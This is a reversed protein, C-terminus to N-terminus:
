RDTNSNGDKNVEKWQLYEEYDEDPYHMHFHCEECHVTYGSGSNNPPPKKYHIVTARKDCGPSECWKGRMKWMERANPKSMFTCNLLIYRPIPRPDNKVRQTLSDDLFDEHRSDRM